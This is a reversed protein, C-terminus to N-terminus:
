YHLKLDKAINELFDNFADYAKTKSVPIVHAVVLDAITLYKRNRPPKFYLENVIKQVYEPAEEYCVKIAFHERRLNNLRVDEDLTILMRDVSDNPKYQAKGGGVNEDVPIFPHRLEFERQAKHKYYNMYDELLSEIYARTQRRM